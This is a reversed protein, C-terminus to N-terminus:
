FGPQLAFQWYWGKDPRDNPHVYDLEVIVIGLANIRLALGESTVPKRPGGLFSAEESRTWAVGADYFVGAEIPLFNASRILGAPGFLPLRLELNAVAVRSGLLRNYISPDLGSQGLEEISFSEVDYGRVLWPYGIFLAGIRDDEASGGYRGLHLIRGALTLPRVLGQYRRFDALAGVFNLGGFVPSVELRYRQGLIPSTGGFLSNDYVYAAYSTALNLADISDAEVTEDLLLNGNVDSYIQTQTEDEFAINRYGGGVEFRRVRSLPYVLSGQVERDIQWFRHDQIRTAPEGNFSGQDVEIFREIYPIQGASLGWNWRAKRNEYAVISAVNNLFSGGYNSVQLLTALRHNGLMDSWFLTSGGGVAIGGGGSSVGLGVQSVHDLSLGARYPTIQPSAAAALGLSPDRALDVVESTARDTPPLAAPDFGERPVAPPGGALVEPSDIMYLALHGDAYASFVLRGAAVSFAPGLRTIGSVGTRMRTVQAIAGGELTVRHVNSIGGHDSVFYLSKSDPSWDPDIHKGEPFGPIAQIEGGEPDILALRENGHSLDDLRTGFRDTVFAISRGDPSWDPALDAFLDNTLRRRRGSELEIVHLDTAGGELASFVIANGDPSWSPDFVEDLDRFRMERLTRGSEVDVISILPQGDSVAGFAFRKGDPAWAGASQIFQLSQYHPDVATRTIRRIVRGTQADALYAEISFLDRESLFVLRRGDPSLAPSVNLRGIGGREKVIVRAFRDPTAATDVTANWARLADHWAASVSDSSMGAVKAIAMEADGSTAASKLITGVSRDGWRGALFAWVAQGYRYPFYKPHTLKSLKPLENRQTADRMWMATNPDRPGISLYEAMGEIFWLPLRAVNPDVAGASRRQGTIDFQFAHVLEHGIVHDSEALSVGLPLVIRRKAFETVGGTGEGLDGEIANTQEFDPHSAYLILPQRGSLQHDLLRSLRAYWREAMRAAHEAAVREEEYYYVDFHETKLIKFDFSRYRVKNRGFYQAEVPPALAGLGLALMGLLALFSFTRPVM